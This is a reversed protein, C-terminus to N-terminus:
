RRETLVAQVTEAIYRMDSEGYRQDVPLCALREVLSQEFESAGSGPVNRWLLPVFINRELLRKRMPEPCMYPYASPAAGPRYPGGAGLLQSLVRANSQRATRVRDYDISDMLRWTLESMALVGDRQRQESTQRQKYAAGAGEEAAKLLYQAREWSSDRELPRQPVSQGILYAGDPVGFFRACSYINYVRPAYVPECFFSMSNDVIVNEHGAAYARVAEDLCGFYNILLIGDEPGREIPEPLFDEGIHYRVLEVGDEALKDFPKEPAYYPVYLRRLGLGEAAMRLASAESNLRLIREFPVANFYERGGALELPMAGGYEPLDESLLYYGGLAGGEASRRVVRQPAGALLANLRATDAAERVIVLETRCKDRRGRLEVPQSCATDIVYKLYDHGTSLRVLEAGILEGRMCPSVELVRIRGSEDMFFEVSSAGDTLGFGDLIELVASRAKELTEEDMAAPQEFTHSLFAGEQEFYANETVALVTHVGHCSICEASYLRDSVYEEVVAKREFSVERAGNIAGLLQARDMVKRVGRGGSRDSPKVVLPYACDIEPIADEIEYFAPQDMGLERLRRRMKIKNIAQEVAAEPHGPLGLRAAISAVALAGIDSSITVIGDPALRRCENYISDRNTVSIPYFFDAEYEGPDDNQWAFVHAEYGLEKARKILPTQHESAGLIVIKKM